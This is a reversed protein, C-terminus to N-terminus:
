GGEEAAGNRAHQWRLTAAFLGWVAGLLLFMHRWHDTDVIFGQLSVGIFTATVAALPLTYPSRRSLAYLGVFWTLLITAIYSFGGLWGYSFFANLFVNHSDAGFYERFHLPGLGLPNELILPLSALQNSFRGGSGTDYKQTLSARLEFVKHVEPITLLALLVAVLVALGVASLMGVRLRLRASPALALLFFIYLAGSLVFHAWAGRSFALVLGVLIIMFPAQAAMVTRARGLLMDQLLLILPLVLFPAFVNPDKFMGKARGYRTLLDYTGGVDFYGAIGLLAAVVASAIYARRIVAFRELTHTSLICAFFVANAAMFISIVVYTLTEPRGLVQMLAIGGGITFLALLFVLPLVAAPVSIGALMFALLAPIFLLEYPSPEYLVFSGSFVFLGLLIRALVESSVIGHVPAAANQATL